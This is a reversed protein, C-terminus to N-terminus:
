GSRQSWWTTGLACMTAGLAFAVICVLTTLLVDPGIDQM